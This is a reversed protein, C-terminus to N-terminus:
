NHVNKNVKVTKTKYLLFERCLSALMSRLLSVGFSLLWCPTHLLFKVCLGATPMYSFSGYLGLNPMYSFSGYLGLSPM